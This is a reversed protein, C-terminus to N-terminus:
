PIPVYLSILWDKPLEGIKHIVNFLDQITGLHREHPLKILKVHVEDLELAKNMRRLALLQQEGSIHPGIETKIYTNM